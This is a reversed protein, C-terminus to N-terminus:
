YVQYNPDRCEKKACLFYASQIPVFTWKMQYKSKTELKMFQSEQNKKLRILKTLIVYGQFIFVLLILNRVQLVSVRLRLEQPKRSEGTIHAPTM